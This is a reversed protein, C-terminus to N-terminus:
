EGTSGFGGQDRATRSLRKVIKVQIPRGDFAVIQCLRQGKKVHVSMEGYNTVAMMINGRYGEDIIGISNCQRLSTKYISSRPTLMFACNETEIIDPNETKWKREMSCACGTDLLVTEGPKICVEDMCALDVGADGEHHNEKFWEETYVTDERGKSMPLLSLVNQSRNM